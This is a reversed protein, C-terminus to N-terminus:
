YTRIINTFIKEYLSIANQNKGRINEVLYSYESKVWWDEYPQEVGTDIGTDIQTYTVDECILDFGKNILFEKQPKKEENIFDGEDQYARYSDHEITLVKIDWDWNLGKLVKFRDGLGEVDISVYDPPETIFAWDTELANLQYFKLDGWGDVTDIDIFYGDWNYKILPLCVSSSLSGCGIDLFRKGDGLIFKALLAQTNFNELM